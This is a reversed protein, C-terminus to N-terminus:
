RERQMPSATAMEAATQQRGDGFENRWQVSVESFYPDSQAERWAKIREYRKQHEDLLHLGLPDSDTFLTTIPSMAFHYLRLFSKVPLTDCATDFVTM